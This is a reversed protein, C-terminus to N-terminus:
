LAEVRNKNEKKKRRLCWFYVNFFLDTHQTTTHRDVSVRLDTWEAEREAQKLHTCHATCRIDININIYKDYIFLYYLFHNKDIELGFVGVREESRSMAVPRTAYPYQRGLHFLSM